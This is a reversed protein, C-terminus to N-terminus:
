NNTVLINPKDPYSAPGDQDNVVLAFTSQVVIDNALVNDPIQSDRSFMIEKLRFDDVNIQDGISIILDPKYLSYDEVVTNNYILSHVIVEEFLGEEYYIDSQLKITGKVPWGYVIASPKATQM